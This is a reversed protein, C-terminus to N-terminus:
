KSPRPAADGASLLQQITQLFQEPATGKVALGDVLKTAAAPLDVYASFLLIKVQPKLQKMEAAVKGGDMEPMM